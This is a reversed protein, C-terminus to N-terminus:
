ELRWGTETRRLVMPRLGFPEAIVNRRFSLVEMQEARLEVVAYGSGQPGEPFFLRWTGKWYRRKTESDAHLIAKGHVVLNANEAANGFALTVEPCAAIERAKRSAPDIGIFFHFQKLDCIPEVLRASPWANEGHSILFCYRTNRATSRAARLCNELGLDARSRKRRKYSALLLRGLKKRLSM